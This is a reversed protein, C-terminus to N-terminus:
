EPASRLPLLRFIKKKWGFPHQKEIHVMQPAGIPSWSIGTSLSKQQIDLRSNM